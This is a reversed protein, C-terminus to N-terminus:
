HVKLGSKLMVQALDQAYGGECAFSNGIVQWSELQVNEKVWKIAKNTLMHFTYFGMTGVIQVDIKKNKTM